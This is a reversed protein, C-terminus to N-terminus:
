ILRYNLKWRFTSMKHSCLSQSVSPNFGALAVCQCEVILSGREPSDRKPLPRLLYRLPPPRKGRLHLSRRENSSVKASAETARKIEPWDHSTRWM